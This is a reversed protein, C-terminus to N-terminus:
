KKNRFIISIRRDFFKDIQYNSYLPGSDRGIIAHTYEYRYKNRLIYLSRPELEVDITETSDIQDPKLVMTRTSVLSVGAIMDGSFKVSDM